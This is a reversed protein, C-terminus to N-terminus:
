EDFTQIFHQQFTRRWLGYFADIGRKDPTAQMSAARALSQPTIIPTPRAKADQKAGTLKGADGRVGGSKRTVNERRACWLFLVM